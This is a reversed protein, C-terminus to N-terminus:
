MDKANLFNLGDVLPDTFIQMFIDDISIYTTTSGGRIFFPTLHNLEDEGIESHFYFYKLQWWGSTGKVM